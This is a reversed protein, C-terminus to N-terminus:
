TFGVRCGFVGSRGSRRAGLSETRTDNEPFLLVIGSLLDVADMKAGTNSRSSMSVAEGTERSPFLCNRNNKMPSDQLLKLGSGGSRNKYGM